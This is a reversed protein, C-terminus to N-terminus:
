AAARARERIGAVRAEVPRHVLTVLVFSILMLLYWAGMKEIPVMRWGAAQSPYIWAGAFTGLNEAFWIFLSVLLAGMLMPMRRPTEDPTFLFWTRGFLLASLAFLGLRIDTVYHHTFFNVYILVALVHTTWLPPYRVFTVDFLRWIRAIYSGVCAYMFGTFLPVGGIRLLSPEPYIWSGQATKFLEMVTGVVHFIFIVLAEDWRELKLALLLGQIAVSAIVLFDYRALPAHEPWFLKTGVLLALMLGGFLCAWAQKLGFLLFEYAYGRRRSRRAWPRAWVDLAAVGSKIRDKLNM